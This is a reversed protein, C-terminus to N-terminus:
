KQEFQQLDIDVGQPNGEFRLILPAKPSNLIWIKGTGGENELYLVDIVQDKIKFSNADSLEKLTYVQDDYTMKKDKQLANWMSKSLLLITQDDSVSMDVGGSLEGWYGHTATLTSAKGNGISGSQDGMTWAFKSYEDGLSDIEMRVPIIQGNVSVQYTLVSGKKLALTSKQAFAVVSFLLTGLIILVRRM